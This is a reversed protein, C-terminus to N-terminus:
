GVPKQAFISNETYGLTTPLERCPVSTTPPQQFTPALYDFKEPDFYVQFYQKYKYIVGKSSAIASVTGDCEIISIPCIYTMQLDTSGFSPYSTVGANCGIVHTASLQTQFNM